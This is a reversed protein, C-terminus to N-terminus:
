SKTIEELTRGTTRPGFGAVIAGMVLLGGALIAFLTVGGFGTYIAAVAVGSVIGAIRAIGAVVGSGVGRLRTPFVEPLYTYFTVSCVSFSINAVVGAVILLANSTTIGFVLLAVAAVVGAGLLITKREVRDALLFLILAASLAAFTIITSTSLAETQTMGREVLMTPLWATYGFLCFVFIAFAGGLVALRRRYLPAFLERMSAALAPPPSPPPEALPGKREALVEVERVLRDAAEERGHDVQWRVSEPLWLLTAVAVIVGAAGLAFVWRWASPGTPVILLAALSGLLPAVFGFFGMLAFFRGRSAAPFMESVFVMIVGAAAQIGVGTLVRGVVLVEFNPAVASLLSAASYFLASGILMARRGFRDSLRGGVVAGLFMGVFMSSTVVGVDAISLGWEARVAPAVYSFVVNDFAEVLYAFGIISIWLFHKGTVPLRDLRGVPTVRGVRTDARAGVDAGETESSTM